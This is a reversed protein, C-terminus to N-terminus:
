PQVEDFYSYELVKTAKAVELPHDKLDGSLPIRITASFRDTKATLVADETPCTEAYATAEAGLDIRKALDRQRGTCDLTM